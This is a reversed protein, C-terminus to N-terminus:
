EKSYFIWADPKVNTKVTQIVSRADEISSYQGYSIRYYGEATPPLIVIKTHFEKELQEAKQQATSFNKFSQLIIYYTIQEEEASDTELSKFSPAVPSVSEEADSGTTVIPPSYKLIDKLTVDRPPLAILYIIIALFVLIIILIVHKM